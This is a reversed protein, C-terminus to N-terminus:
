LGAKFFNIITTEIDRRQSKNLSWNESGFILMPAATIRIQNM